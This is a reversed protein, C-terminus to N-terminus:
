QKPRNGANGYADALGVVLSDDSPSSALARTYLDIARDHVGLSECLAAVAPLDQPSVRDSAVLSDLMKRAATLDGRDVYTRAFELDLASLSPKLRERIRLADNIRGMALYTSALSVALEPDFDDALSQEMACIMDERTTGSLAGQSDAVLYSRARLRRVLVPDADPLAALRSIVQFAKESRGTDVCAQALDSLVVPDDPYARVAADLAQLAGNADGLMSFLDAAWLASQADGAALARACDQTDQRAGSQFALQGCAYVTDPEAEGSVVLRKLMRWGQEPRGAAAQAFAAERWDSQANTEQAITMAWEARQM